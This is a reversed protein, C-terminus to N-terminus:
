VDDLCLGSLAGVAATCDRGKQYGELRAYGLVLNPQIFFFDLLSDKVWETLGTAENREM